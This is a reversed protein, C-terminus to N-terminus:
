GGLLQAAHADVKRTLLYLLPGFSGAVVSLVLWLWPNRGTKQGDIWMWYMGIGVAIFLDILM